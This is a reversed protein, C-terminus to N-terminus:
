RTQPYTGAPCSYPQTCHLAHFSPFPKRSISKLCANSCFFYKLHANACSTFPKSWFFPYEFLLTIAISTCKSYKPTFDYPVAGYQAPSCGIVSPYSGRRSFLYANLDDPQPLRDNTELDGWLYRSGFSRFSVENWERGTFYTTCYCHCLKCFLLPPRPTGAASASSYTATAGSRNCPCIRIRLGFAFNM